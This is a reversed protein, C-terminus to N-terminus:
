GEKEAKWAFGPIHRPDDVDSVLVEFMERWVARPTKRITSLSLAMQGNYTISIPREQPMTSNPHFKDWLISMETFPWSNDLDYPYVYLAYPAFSNPLLHTGRDLLTSSV